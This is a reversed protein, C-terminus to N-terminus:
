KQKLDLKYKMISLKKPKQKQLLKKILIVGSQLMLYHSRGFM